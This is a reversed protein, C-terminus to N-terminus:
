SLTNLYFSTSSKNSATRLIRLGNERVTLKTKQINVIVEISVFLNKHIFINSPM